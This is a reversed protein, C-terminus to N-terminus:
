NIAYDYLSDETIMEQKKLISIIIEWSYYIGDYYLFIEGNSDYMMRSTEKLEEEMPIEDTLSTMAMRICSTYTKVRRAYSALALITETNKMDYM